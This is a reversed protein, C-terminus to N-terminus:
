EEDVHLSLDIREPAGSARRFRESTDPRTSGLLATAPEDM